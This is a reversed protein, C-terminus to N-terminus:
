IVQKAPLNSEAFDTVPKNQASTGLLQNFSEFFLKARGSNVHENDVSEMLWVCGDVVCPFYADGLLQVEDNVGYNPPTQAYEITIVQGATSPPYVFFLNPSRVHRMWDKVPGATGSQWQFMLDLTERNVENVNQGDGSLIVDILRFSDAPATQRTGAVCTMDAVYAFLDPRLVLIRRLVQNVVGLMHPDDYRYTARSDQVARRVETIVDQPTFSM